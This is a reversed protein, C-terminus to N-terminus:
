VQYFATMTSWAVALGLTPGQSLFAMIQWELSNGSGWLRTTPRKVINYINSQLASVHLHLHHFGVWCFGRNKIPSQSQLFDTVEACWTVECRSVGNQWNVYSVMRHSLWQAPSTRDCCSEPTWQSYSKPCIITSATQMSLHMTKISRHDHGHNFCRFKIIRFFLYWQIFFFFKELLPLDVLLPQM